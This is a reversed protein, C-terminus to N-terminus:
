DPPLGDGRASKGEEALWGNTSPHSMEPVTSSTTPTVRNTGTVLNVPDGQEWPGGLDIDASFTGLEFSATMPGVRRLARLIFRDDGLVDVHVRSVGKTRARDLL